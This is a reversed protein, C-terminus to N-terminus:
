SSRREEEGRAEDEERWPIRKLGGIHAFHKDLELLPLEHRLCLAAILADPAPVTVGQRRLTGLIEGARRFDERETDLYLLASLHSELLTREAERLGSLLEMEVVGCLVVRDEAILRDLAEAVKREAGRARKGRFFAIWVNTDALVRAGGNM